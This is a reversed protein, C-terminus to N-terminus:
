IYISIESNAIYGARNFKVGFKGTCAFTEGTIFSGAKFGASHDAAIIKAKGPINDGVASTQHNAIFNLKM